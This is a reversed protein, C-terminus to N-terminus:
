DTHVSARAGDPADRVQEAMQQYVTWLESIAVARRSVRSLDKGEETFPYPYASIGQDPALPAVEDEWGSWRLSESFGALDGLLCWSVFEGHGLGIPEWRLTDPGFYCVEGSSGPLGGGNVAFRGGLVDFAVLLHNSAGHGRNDLENSTALNMPGVGGGLLRLWGHDVVLGGTEFALAGLASATTVQLALLTSARTQTEAVLVEVPSLSGDIAAEIRPWAPDPVDILENV